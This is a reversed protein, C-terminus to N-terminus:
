GGGLRQNLRLVRDHDAIVPLSVDYSRTGGKPDRSLASRFIVEVARRPRATVFTPVMFRAHEPEILAVTAMLENGAQRVSALLEDWGGAVRAIAELYPASQSARNDFRAQGGALVQAATEPRLSSTRFGNVECRTPALQGELPTPGAKVTTQPRQM